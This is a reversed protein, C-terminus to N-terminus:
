IVDRILPSTFPIVSCDYSGSIYPKNHIVCADNIIYRATFNDTADVVLDFHSIVESANHVTLKETITPFNLTPNIAKMRQAASEAKNM